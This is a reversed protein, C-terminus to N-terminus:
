VMGSLIFVVDKDEEIEKQIKFYKKILKKILDFKSSKKLVSFVFKNKGVRKIEKLGKEINKFNHIATVSVVVDFYNDKFPLKEAGAVFKKIAPNQKLLEKSTDVATVDCEFDSSLGTGAGVDLLKDTKKIKINKKILEIKKKQEEGHLENYGKSIKNYYNM